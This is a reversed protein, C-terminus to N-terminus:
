KRYRKVPYSNYKRVIIYLRNAKDIEIGYKSMLMRTGGERFIASVEDFLPQMLRKAHHYLQHYFQQKTIGYKAYVCSPKVGIFWEQMMKIEQKDEMLKWIKGDPRFQGVLHNNFKDKKKM